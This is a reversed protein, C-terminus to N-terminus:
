SNNKNNREMIEKQIAQAEKTFMLTSSSTTQLGSFNVTKSLAESQKISTEKSAVEVEDEVELDPDLEKLWCTLPKHKM